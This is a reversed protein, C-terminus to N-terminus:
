QLIVGIIKGYVKKDIKGCGEYRIIVHRKALQAELLMSFLADYKPHTANLQYLGNKACGRAPMSVYASGEKDLIHLRHPNDPLTQDASYGNM